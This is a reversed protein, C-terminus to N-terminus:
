ASVLTQHAEERRKSRAESEEIDEYSLDRYDVEKRIQSVYRKILYTEEKQYRIRSEEWTQKKVERPATKSDAYFEWHREFEKLVYKYAGINKLYDYIEQKSISKKPFDSLDKISEGLNSLPNEKGDDHRYPTTVYEYFSVEKKEEAPPSPQSM